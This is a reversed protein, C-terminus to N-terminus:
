PSSLIQGGQKAFCIIRTAYAIEYSGIGAAQGGQKAFCFALQWERCSTQRTKIV